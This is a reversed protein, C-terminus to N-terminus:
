HFILLRPACVVAILDAFAGLAPRQGFGALLEFGGTLLLWGAILYLLAIVTVVPSFLTVIGILVGILGEFILGRAHRGDPTGRIGGLLAAIGDIFVWAGFLIVLSLLTMGPWFLAFFGWVLAILGRIGQAWAHHAPVATAM